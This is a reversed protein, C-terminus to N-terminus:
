SIQEMPRIKDLYTPLHLNDQGLIAKVSIDKFSVGDRAKVMRPAERRSKNSTGSLNGPTVM